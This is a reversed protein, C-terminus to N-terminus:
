HRVGAAQRLGDMTESSTTEVSIFEYSESGGTQHIIRVKKRVAPFKVYVQATGNRLSSDM